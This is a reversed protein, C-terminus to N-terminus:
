KSLAFRGSAGLFLRWHETVDTLGYYVGTDLQWDDALAYTLGADATVDDVDDDEFGSTAVYMELFASLAGMIPSGVSVSGIVWTDDNNVRMVGLMSSMARDDGLDIAVPTMIGYTPHELAADGRTSVLVFPLLAAATGGGDNGIMNFKARLGAQGTGEDTVDPLGPSKVQTRVYPSFIFQLDLRPTVGYKVNFPTISTGTITEDGFESEGHSVVDSEFQLWGKPV